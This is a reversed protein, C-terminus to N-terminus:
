LYYKNNFSVIKYTLKRQTNNECDKLFRLTTKDDFTGLTLFLKNGSLQYYGRFVNYQTKERTQLVRVIQNPPENSRIVM